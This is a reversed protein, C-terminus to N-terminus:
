LPTSYLIETSRFCWLCPFNYISFFRFSTNRSNTHPVGWSGLPAPHHWIHFLWRAPKAPKLRGDDTAAPPMLEMRTGVWEIIVANSVDRVVTSEACFGWDVDGIEEAPRWSPARNTQKGPHKIERPLGRM